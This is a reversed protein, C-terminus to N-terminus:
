KKELAEAISKLNDNILKLEDRISNTGLQMKYFSSSMKSLSTEVEDRKWNNEQETM